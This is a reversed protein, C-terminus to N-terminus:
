PPKALVVRARLEVLKTYEAYLSNAGMPLAEYLEMIPALLALFSNFKFPEFREWISFDVM